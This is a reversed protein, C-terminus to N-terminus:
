LGWATIFIMSHVHIFLLFLKIMFKFCRLPSTVLPACLTFCDETKVLRQKSSARALQSLSSDVGHLCTIVWEVLTLWKKNVGDGRYVCTLQGMNVLRLYRVIGSQHNGPSFLLALLSHCVHTSSILPHKLGCKKRCGPKSSRKQEIWIAVILDTKYM